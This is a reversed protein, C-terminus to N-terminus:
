CLSDSLDYIKPYICFPSVRRTSESSTPELVTKFLSRCRKGLQHGQQGISGNAAITFEILRVMSAMQILTSKPLLVWPEEIPNILAILYMWDLLNAYFFKELRSCMERLLLTSRKLFSIHRGWFLCSYRLEPSTSETLSDRALPEEGEFQRDFVNCIDWRLDRAMIDLCACALSLHSAAEDVYYPVQHTSRLLFERFTPHLFRVPDDNHHCDLVSQLDGVIELTNEINLIQDITKPSLPEFAVAIISLVMRYPEMTSSDDSDALVQQLAVHYISDMKQPGQVLVEELLQRKNGRFKLLLKCVTSAWIFLGESRTVLQDVKHSPFSVPKLKEQIFLCVDERNSQFNGRLSGRRMKFEQLKDLIHFEPRSTLFVKLQHLNPLQPLLVRLLRVLSTPECEDLADLVLVVPFTVAELPRVFLSICQEELPASVPDCLERIGDTIITRVQSGLHSLGQQAITGFFYLPKRTHESDRSFFFRGALQKRSKLDKALHNAVTSKGSGAVDALWFIQPASRDEIWNYIEDLTFRRTGKL